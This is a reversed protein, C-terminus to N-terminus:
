AGTFESIHSYEAGKELNPKIKTTFIENFQQKSVIFTDGKEHLKYFYFEQGTTQYKHWFRRLTNQVGLPLSKGCSYCAM